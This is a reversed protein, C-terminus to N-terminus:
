DGLGDALAYTEATLQAGAATPHVGDAQFLGDAPMDWRSAGNFVLETDVFVFGHERAAPKVSYYPDLMRRVEDRYPQDSWAEHLIFPPAYADGALVTADDGVLDGILGFLEDTASPIHATKAVLCAKLPDPWEGSCAGPLYQAKIVDHSSMAWLLVVDAAALDARLGADRRVKDIWWALPALANAYQWAYYSRLDVPVGLERCVIDAYIAPYAAQPSYSEDERIGSGGTESTGLAVVVLQDGPATECSIRVFPWEPRPTPAPTFTTSPAPPSALAAASPATLTPQATGSACGGALVVVGLVILWRTM